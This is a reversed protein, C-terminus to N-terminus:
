LVGRRREAVVERMLRELVQVVAARRHALLIQQGGVECLAGALEARQM